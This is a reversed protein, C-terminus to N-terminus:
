GFSSKSRLLKIVIRLPPQLLRLRQVLRMTRRVGATSFLRWSTLAEDAISLAPSCAQENGTTGLGCRRRSPQVERLASSCVAPM